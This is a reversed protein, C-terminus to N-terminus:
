IIGKKMNCMNIFFIFYYACESNNRVKADIPLAVCVRGDVNSNENPMIGVYM